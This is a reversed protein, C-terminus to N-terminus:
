LELFTVVAPHSAYGQRSLMDDLFTTLLEVRREGLKESQFPWCTGPPFKVPVNVAPDDESTTPPPAAQVKHYLWQFHSFRRWLTQTTRARRVVVKYYFCPHHTNGGIDSPLDEPATEFRQFSEVRVTYVTEEFRPSWQKEDLYLFKPPPNDTSAM